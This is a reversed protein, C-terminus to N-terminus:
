PSTPPKIPILITLGAAEDVIRHTVPGLLDLVLRTVLPTVSYQSLRLRRVGGRNVDLGRMRARNIVGPLDLVLRDPNEVLFDRYRLPGDAQVVIAMEDDRSTLRVELL